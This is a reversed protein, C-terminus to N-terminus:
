QHREGTRWRPRSMQRPDKDNSSQEPGARGKLSSGTVANSVVVMPKFLPLYKSIFSTFVESTKQMVAGNRDVFVGISQDV